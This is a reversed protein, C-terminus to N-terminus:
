TRFGALAESVRGGDVNFVRGIERNLMEPHAKHYARIRERLSVTSKQAKARTTKVASRRFMELVVERIARAEEACGKEDLERAIEMLVDRCDPITM